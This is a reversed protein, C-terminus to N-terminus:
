VTRKLEKFLLRLGYAATQSIVLNGFGRKIEREKVDSTKDALSGELSLQMNQLTLNLIAEIQPQQDKPLMPLLSEKLSRRLEDMAKKQTRALAKAKWLEPNDQFQSKRQDYFEGLKQGVDNQPRAHAPAIRNYVWLYLQSRCLQSGGTKHSEKDGSSEEDKAMGLRRKFRGLSEFKTIPYIQSIFLAQQRDGIGFRTMVKRYNMFEPVSLLQGIEAEIKNEWDRLDCLLNALTRSFDSINVGYKPAISKAYLRDYYQSKRKTNREQGALWAWLPVMGDDAVKSASLAAEPFEKALQQRVRNIPASQIRNISQLQLWLERLRAVNGANFHLFFEDNHWHTFAYLALAAADAQDNKDPLKNQKRFHKVEAHGVWRVEIKEISCIHAWIWSYHIGTPELIIADPKLEILQTVGTINASFTLPDNDKPRRNKRFYERFSKPLTEETDLLWGVVSSKCVDLGLIRM